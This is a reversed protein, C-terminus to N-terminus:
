KERKNQDRILWRRRPVKGSSRRVTEVLGIVDLPLPVRLCSLSRSFFLSLVACVCLGSSLGFVCVFECLCVDVYTSDCVNFSWSFHFRPASLMFSRESGGGLYTTGAVCSYEEGKRLLFHVKVM